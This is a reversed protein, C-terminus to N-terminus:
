FIAQGHGIALTCTGTGTGAIVTLPGLDVVAVANMSPFTGNWSGNLFPGNTGLFGNNFVQATGSTTNGVKTIKVVIYQPQQLGPIMVAVALRFTTVNPTSVPVPDVQLALTGSVAHCLGSGDIAVNGLNSARTPGVAGLALAFALLRICGMNVDLNTPYRDDAKGVKAVQM